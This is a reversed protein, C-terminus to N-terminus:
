SKLENFVGFRRELENFSYTKIIIPVSYDKTILSLQQLDIGVGPPEEYVLVLLIKTNKWNFKDFISIIQNITSRIIEVSIKHYSYKVEVVHLSGDLVFAADFGVDSAVTVQRNIPVDYETQIARLAMDEALLYRSKLSDISNSPIQPPSPSSVNMLEHLETTMKERQANLTLPKLESLEFPGAKVASGYKIREQLADLLDFIPKNFRWVLGAILGVWLITQILPAIYQM